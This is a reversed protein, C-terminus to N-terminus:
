RRAARAVVGDIIVDIAFRFREDSDGAVMQAAHATILPLRDPPVGAFTKYLGDACATLGFTEPNTSASPTSGEHGFAAPNLGATDATGGRAGVGRLRGSLGFRHGPSGAPPSPWAASSDTGDGGARPARSPAM